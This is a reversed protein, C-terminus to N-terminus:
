QVWVGRRPSGSGDLMQWEPHGLGTHRDAGISYYAIAKLGGAKLARSMEGVYDRALNPHRHGIETPYLCNGFHDKCFIGVAQIGAAVFLEVQRGADVGRAVDRVWDNLHWDLWHKRVLEGYWNQRSEMRM